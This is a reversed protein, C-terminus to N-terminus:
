LVGLLRLVCGIFFIVLTYYVITQIEPKPSPAKDGVIDNVKKVM